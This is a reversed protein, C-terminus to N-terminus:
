TKIVVGQRSQGGVSGNRSDGKGASVSENVETQRIHYICIDRVDIDYCIVAVTRKNLMDSATLVKIKCAAAATDVNNRGVM